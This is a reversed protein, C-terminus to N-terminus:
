FSVAFSGAGSGAWLGFLFVALIISFTYVTAGLLPSLLRTWVVEAGPASLGSFAITIYVLPAGPARQVPEPPQVDEGVAARSGPVIAASALGFLAVAANIAVGTYTGVAMAYVRLLYFGALVCAAVACCTAQANRLAFALPSGQCRTIPLPPIISRDPISPRRCRVSSSSSPTGNLLLRTSIKRQSNLNQFSQVHAFPDGSPTEFSPGRGAPNM